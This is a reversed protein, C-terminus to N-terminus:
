RRLLSNMRQADPGYQRNPRYTSSSLRYTQVVGEKMSSSASTHTASSTEYAITEKWGGIAHPYSSNVNNFGIQYGDTLTNSGGGGEWRNVFIAYVLENALANARSATATATAAAVAVTGQADPPAPVTDFVGAPWEDVWCIIENLDPGDNGSYTFVIDTRGGNVVVVRAIGYAYSIAPNGEVDDVCTSGAVAVRNPNPNNNNTGSWAWTVIVTSGIAFSTGINFTTSLGQATAKLEGSTQRRTPGTRYMAGFFDYGQALNVSFDISGAGQGLMDKHVIVEDGTIPLIFSGNEGKFTRSQSTNAAFLVGWRGAAGSAYECSHSVASGEGTATKPYSAELPSSSLGRVEMIIGRWNSVGALTMVCATGAATVRFRAVRWLGFETDRDTTMSAGGFTCAGSHVQTDAVSFCIIDNGNTAPTDLTLTYSASGSQMVSSKLQVITASTAQQQAVAQQAAWLM